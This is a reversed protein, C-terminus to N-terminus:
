GGNEKLFVDIGKKITKILAQKVVPKSKNARKFDFAVFSLVYILMIIAVSISDKNGQKNMEYVYKNVTNLTKKTYKQYLKYDMEQRNIKRQKKTKM